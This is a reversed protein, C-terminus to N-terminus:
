SRHYPVFCPLLMAVSTYRLRSEEEADDDDDDDDDDDQECFM